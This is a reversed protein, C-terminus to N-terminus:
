YVFRSALIFSCIVILVVLSGGIGAKESMSHFSQPLLIFLSNIWVGARELVTAKILFKM